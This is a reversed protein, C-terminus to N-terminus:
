RPSERAAPEIADLPVREVGQSTECVFIDPHRGTAAHYDAAIRRKFESTMARDVLNVTCGGFGGGTMRAGFVGPRKKALDVMLDLEPCSVQYDDRLSRHSEAMLQGLHAIKGERLAAAARPVRDNETIVHRCRRYILDSLLNRNRELAELSVDRLAQIGPLAASLAAVGQECELRRQNYEGEGHEHKVMTNCVVLRVDGPFPVQRSELSRCDLLLVHAARGNCCVFQDMIGVHAGVFENEARQCLMAVKTRDMEYGSRDLLACAVAVELAASSSLGAGLPIDGRVYLNAGHIRYGSKQLVWAVGLPYDSWKRERHLHNGDLPAEVTENFNDSHIVIKNDDRPGLAVWCSFDISAPLVFGANYDTHEGILNVRGPARYTLSPAGFLAQFRSLLHPLSNM